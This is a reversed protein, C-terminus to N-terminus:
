LGEFCWNDLTNSWFRGDGQRVLDRQDSGGTLLAVVAMGLNRFPDTCSGSSGAGAALESPRPLLRGAPPAQGAAASTRGARNTAARRKEPTKYARMTLYIIKFQRLEM